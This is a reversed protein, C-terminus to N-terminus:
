GRHAPHVLANLLGLLGLFTLLCLDWRATQPAPAIRAIARAPRSREIM